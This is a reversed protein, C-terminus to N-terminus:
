VIRKTQKKTTSLNSSPTKVKLWEVLGIKQSPEKSIPDRSSNAWSPKSGQDEQNRGGLYSPNCALAVPMRAM